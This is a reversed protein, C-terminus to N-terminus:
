VTRWEPMSSMWCVTGSAALGGATSVAMDRIAAASVLLDHHDSWFMALLSWLM